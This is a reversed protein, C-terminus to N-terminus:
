SYSFFNPKQWKVYWDYFNHIVTWSDRFIWTFKFFYFIFPFMSITQEYSDKHWKVLAALLESASHIYYSVLPFIQFRRWRHEIDYPCVFLCLLFACTMAIRTPSCNVYPFPLHCIQLNILPCLQCPPCVIEDKINM